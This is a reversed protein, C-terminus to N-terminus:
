KFWTNLCKLFYVKIQYWVSYRLNKLFRWLKVTFMVTSVGIKHFITKTTRGWLRLVRISTGQMMHHELCSTWRLIFWTPLYLICHLAGAYPLAYSTVFAFIRLSANQMQACVCAIAYARTFGHRSTVLAHASVVCVNGWSFASKAYKAAM